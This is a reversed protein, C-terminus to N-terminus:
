FFSRSGSVALISEALCSNQKQTLSYLFIIIRVEFVKRYRAKLVSYKLNYGFIKEYEDDRAFYDLTDALLNCKREHFIDLLM